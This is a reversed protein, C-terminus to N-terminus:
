FGLVIVNQREHLTEDLNGLPARLGGGEKSLALPPDPLDIGVVHTLGDDGDDDHAYAEGQRNQLAGGIWEGECVLRAGGGRGAVACLKAHVM